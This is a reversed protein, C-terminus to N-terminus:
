GCEDNHGGARAAKEAAERESEAKAAMEALGAIEGWGHASLYWSKVIDWSGCCKSPTIRRGGREDEVAIAYWGHSPCRYIALRPVNM